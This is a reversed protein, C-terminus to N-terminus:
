FPIQFILAARTSNGGCTSSNTWATAAFDRYIAIIGSSNLDMRSPSSVSASNNIGDIATSLTGAPRMWTPLATNASLTTSGTGSTGTIPGAVYVYGWNGLRRYDIGVAGTTGGSGNFTFTSAINNESTFENRVWWGTGDCSLSGWSDRLYLDLSNVTTYGDHIVEAGPTDITLIGAGSDTKYFWITRGASLSAAPLTVTRNSAGTSVYIAEYGDTETITYNASSVSNISSRITSFYSTSVGHASPTAAAGSTFFGTADIQGSVVDTGNGRVVRNNTVAALRELVSAGRRIIDGRTTTPDTLQNSTLAIIWTNETTSWTFLAAGRNQNIVYSASGNLTQGGTGTVTINNTAADGLGDLIFFMQGNVGTPLIVSTAAGPSRHVVAAFDTAVNLTVGSTTLTRINNLFRNITQANQGLAILFNSLSSWAM